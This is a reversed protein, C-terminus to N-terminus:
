PAEKKQSFSNEWWFDKGSETYPILHTKNLNNKFKVNDKKDPCPLNNRDVVTDATRSVHVSLAPSKM